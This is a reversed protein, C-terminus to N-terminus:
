NSRSGSIRHQSDEALAALVAAAVEQLEHDHLGTSCPLSLGAEGLQKATACEDSQEGRHSAVWPLPAFIPRTEIGESALSRAVRSRASPALEITYMWYSSRAWPAEKPVVIAPDDAFAGAYLDAIARKRALFQEFREFQSLGLAAQGEGMLYNFGIEAFEYREIGAVPAHTLGRQRPVVRGHRSLMRAREADEERECILMGGGGTTILKNANFSLASLRARSGAPRSRVSAGLAEAADDIVSLRLREGLELTADIDCPHGLLDVAILARLPRGSERNLRDDGVKRYRREVFKEAREVDLVGYEPEVVDFLPHAGVYKIANAPAIYTLAPILVEDGPGVGALILAIHLAATGSQLAVAHPAGLMAAIAHEFAKANAGYAIWPKAMAEAIAACDAASINPAALPIRVAPRVADDIISLSRLIDFKAPVPCVRAAPRRSM